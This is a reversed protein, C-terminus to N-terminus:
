ARPAYANRDPVARRRDRPRVTPARDALFAIRWEIRDRMSARLHPAVRSENDVSCQKHIHRQRRRDSATCRHHAASRPRRCEGIRARRAPKSLRSGPGAQARRRSRSTSWGAVCRGLALAQLRAADHQGRRNVEDGRIKRTFIDTRGQSAARQRLSSTARTARPM